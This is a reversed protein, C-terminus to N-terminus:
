RRATRSSAPREEVAAGPVLIGFVDSFHESLAGSQGSYAVNSTFSTVGHSLEHGIVDLSLTFRHFLVGDGDGYAMQEGNWFANDM